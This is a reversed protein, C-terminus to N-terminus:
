AWWFVNPLFLGPDGGAGAAIAAAVLRNGWLLLHFYGAGLAVGAVARGGRRGDRTSALALHGLVIIAITVIVSALGLGGLGTALETTDDDSWSLAAAITRGILLILTQLAAIGLAAWALPAIPLRASPTPAAAPAVPQSGYPAPPQTSSM